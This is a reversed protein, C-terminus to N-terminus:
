STIELVFHSCIFLTIDLMPSASVDFLCIHLLANHNVAPDRGDSHDTDM